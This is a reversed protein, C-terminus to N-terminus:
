GRRGLVGRYFRVTQEALEESQLWAAMREAGARYAVRRDPDDMEHLAAAVDDPDYMDVLRAGDLRAAPYRLGARDSLIVPCGSLFAEGAVMSFSEFRSGVLTAAARSREMALADKDLRGLFRVCERGHQEFLARAPPSALLNRVQPNPDDWGNTGAVKLLGKGGQDRYRQFGAAILDFGKLYEVNGVVLFSGDHQTDARVEFGPEAQRSFAHPLIAFRDLHVGLLGGELLAVEYSPAVVADARSLNSAISRRPNRVLRWLLSKLGGGVVPDRNLWGRTISTSHCQLVVKPGGPVSPLPKPWGNPPEVLALKVCDLLYRWVPQRRLDFRRSLSRSPFERRDEWAGSGPNWRGCARENFWFVEFGRAGLLCARHHIYSAIGGAREDWPPQGDMFAIRIGGGPM